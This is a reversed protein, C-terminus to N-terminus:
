IITVVEHATSLHNDEESPLMLLDSAGKRPKALRLMVGAPQMAAVQGAPNHLPFYYRVEADPSFRSLEAILEKVKM